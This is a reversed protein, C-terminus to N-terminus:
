STEKDTLPVFHTLVTHILRAATKATREDLDFHPNLEAVDFVALKGSAAVRRLIQNIILPDVGFAAPASVGPAVAAPLVDLDLTLYVVDVSALFIDIFKEVAPVNAATAEEDLLYSVSHADACDFLAQTNAAESIGVVSYVLSCGAAQEAALAQLFPTGSTPQPASRLDFHADLNLIGLRGTPGDAGGYSMRTQSRALGLYSGYAVEHGGGLVLPLAGADRAASVARALREQGSELDSTVVVDGADLLSLDARNGATRGPALSLGSLASRLAAPGQVAGPRGQNRQVGEDSAFGIVVVDPIGGYEAGSEFDALQVAHFLRRHAFGAGDDRGSWPEPLRDTAIKM